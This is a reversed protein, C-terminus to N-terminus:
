LGFDQHFMFFITIINTQTSLYCYREIMVHEDKEKQASHLQFLHRFNSVYSISWFLFYLTIKLVTLCCLVLLWYTPINVWMISELLLTKIQPLLQNCMVQRLPQVKWEQNIKNNARPKHKIIDTTAVLHSLVLLVNINRYIKNIISMILNVTLTM